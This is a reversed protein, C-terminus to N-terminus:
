RKITKSVLVVLLPTSTIFIPLRLRAPNESSLFTAEEGRLPSAHIAIEAFTEISAAFHPCNAFEIILSKASFM